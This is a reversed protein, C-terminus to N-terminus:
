SGKRGEKRHNSCHISEEKEAALVEKEVRSFRAEEKTKQHSKVGKELSQRRKKKATCHLPTKERKGEDDAWALIGKGMGKKKSRVPVSSCRNKRKTTCEAAPCETRGERKLSRSLKKDCLSMSGQNKQDGGTLADRIALRGWKWRRGEGKEKCSFHEGKRRQEHKRREQGRGKWTRHFRKSAAVGKKESLTTDGALPFTMSKEGLEHHDHETRIGKEKGRRPCVGEVVTCQLTDASRKKKQIAPPAIIPYKSRGKREQRFVYDVGPRRHIGKRDSVKRKGPGNLLPAERRLVARRKRKRRDRSVPRDLPTKNRRRERCSFFREREDIGSTREAKTCSLCYYHMSVSTHKRERYLLGREKRERFHFSIFTKLSRKV